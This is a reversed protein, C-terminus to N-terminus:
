FRECRPSAVFCHHLRCMCDRSRWQPRGREASFPVSFRPVTKCLSFVKRQDKNEPLLRPRRKFILFVHIIKSKDSCHGFCLSIVIVVHTGFSVMQFYRPRLPSRVLRGYPTYETALSKTSELCGLGVRGLFTGGLTLLWDVPKTFWNSRFYLLALTLTGYVM